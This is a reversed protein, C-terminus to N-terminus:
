ESALETGGSQRRRENNLHFAGVTVIKTGAALGGIVVRGHETEEGLAVKQLRYRNPAIQVFISEDNGDRVVSELPVVIRQEPNDMLLMTALMQPKFRHQPNALDMRATITRTEPNVTAGIFSVLGTFKEGPLAPIEAQVRKGARLARAHEEPVDAVLWVSSLDGIICVPEATQVVQGQTVQRDLVLGSAAAVVNTQSDIVRTSELKQIAEDTMGIVNLQKRLFALQTAVQLAESERRQQEASSIVGADLLQKARAVARDAQQKATTEKLFDSQAQALETSHITAVVQGKEVHQGKVVNLEIIRGSVPSSVRIMRTEDAEVRGAVSLTASVPRLSPEGVKLDLHLDPSVEIELPDAAPKSKSPATDSASAAAIVDSPGKGCGAVFLSGAAAFSLLSRKLPNM